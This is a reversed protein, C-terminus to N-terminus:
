WQSARARWTIPSLTGDDHLYGVVFGSVSRRTEQDTAWDADVYGVLQGGGRLWLGKDRTGSVYRLLKKLAQMDYVTPKQVNKSLGLVAFTLDPRCTQSLVIKIYYSM